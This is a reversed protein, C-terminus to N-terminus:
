TLKVLKGYNDTLVMKNQTPYLWVFVGESSQVDCGGKDVHVAVFIGAASGSPLMMSSQVGIAARNPYHSTILMVVVQSVINVIHITNQVLM